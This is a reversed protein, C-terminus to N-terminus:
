SRRERGGRGAADGPADELQEAAGGADEGPQERAERREDGHGHGHRDQRAVVGPPELVGEPAVDARQRASEGSPALLRAYLREYADVAADWTLNARAWSWAQSSLATRLGADGLVRAIAAAFEDDTEALLLQEGDVVDLGEVALRSAVVAKGAALAELVKVRMGGGFRIPAAVVGARTVYPLLDPVRGTVEVGAGAAARLGAPANDGVISLSAEPVRERVRPFISRILRDAADVNPPHVFNGVFLVSEGGATPAEVREFFDTGFPIRVVDTQPALAELAEVDRATFAVTADVRGLLDREFRRWARIDLRRLVRDRHSAALDIAANTPPDHVTLVSPVAGDGLEDLYSGLAPYEFQVLDPRWNRLVERLRSRYEASEVENAWLPTGGLVGLRSRVSRFGRARFSRAADLRPVEIVLDLAAKLRADVPAEAPHWLCLLAVDHRAGLRELLQAIVRAGGHAGELSPPFPALFLVRFRHSPGIV